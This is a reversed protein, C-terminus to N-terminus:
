RIVGYQGFVDAFRGPRRGFYWVFQDSNNKNSDPAEGVPKLFEIRQSFLCVPYKSGWLLQAWQPKGAVNLLLLAASVEGACYHEILKKVWPLPDSYPPNCWVRGAWPRLLANDAKTYYRTAQVTRQAEECSAVDLDIRGLVQRAADLVWRPTYRENTDGSSKAPVARFVEEFTVAADSSHTSNSNRKRERYAAQREAASTYKRQQPM